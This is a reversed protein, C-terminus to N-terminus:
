SKCIAVTGSYLPWGLTLSRKWVTEVADGRFSWREERGEEEQGAAQHQILGVLFLLDPIVM